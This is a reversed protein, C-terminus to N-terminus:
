HCHLYINKVLITCARKFQNIIVGLSGSKWNTNTNSSAMVTCVGLEPTQVGPVISIIGHVHNPMIIWEGSVAFLPSETMSQKLSCESIKKVALISSLYKQYSALNNRSFDATLLNINHCLFLLSGGPVCPRDSLSVLPWGWREIVPTASPKGFHRACSTKQNDHNKM